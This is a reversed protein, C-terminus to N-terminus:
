CFSARVLELKVGATYPRLLPRVDGAAGEHLDVVRVPVWTMLMGLIVGQLVNIKM